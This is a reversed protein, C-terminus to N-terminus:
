SDTGSAIKKQQELIEPHERKINDRARSLALYLKDMFDNAQTELRDQMSSKEGSLLTGGLRYRFPIMTTNDELDYAFPVDVFWSFILESSMFVACSQGTLEYGLLNVYVVPVLFGKERISFGNKRLAIEVKDKLASPYPFCGDKVEDTIEIAVEDRTFLFADWGVSSMGAQADGIGFSFLTAIVLLKVRNKM